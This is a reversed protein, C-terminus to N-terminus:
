RARRIWLAGLELEIAEFPAARVGGGGEHVALVPWAGSELTLVELRERLPDAYTAGKKLPKGAM